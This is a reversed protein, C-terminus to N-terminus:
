AACIGCKRRVLEGWVCGKCLAASPMMRVEPTARPYHVGASVLMRRQGGIRVARHDYSVNFPEFFPGDAGRGVVQRLEGAASASATFYGAVLPLLLLLLLPRLRSPSPSPAMAQLLASASSTHASFCYLPPHLWTKGLIENKQHKTSHILFGSTSLRISIMVGSLSPHRVRLRNFLVRM